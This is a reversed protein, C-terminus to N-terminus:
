QRLLTKSKDLLTGWASNAETAYRKLDRYWYPDQSPAINNRTNIETASSLRSQQQMLGIEAMMKDVQKKIGPNLDLENFYRARTYDSQTDTQHIQAKILENQDLKNAIDAFQSAGSVAASLTNGMTPPNVARNPTISGHAGSAAAGTATAGNPTSAGGQTVTLMPNLGANKMDQVARTYATNSMQTTYDRSKQAEAANYAQQGSVQSAQFERDIRAQDANFAQADGQMQQNTQNAANAIDWNKQNTQNQGVFGLIGGVASGIGDFLGM